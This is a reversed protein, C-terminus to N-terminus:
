ALYHILLKRDPTIDIRYGEFSFTFTAVSSLTGDPDLMFLGDLADPDIYEYVPTLEDPERCSQDVIATVIATSVSNVDALSTQYILTGAAVDSQYSTGFPM